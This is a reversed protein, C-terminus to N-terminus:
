WHHCCFGGIDNLLDRNKKRGLMIEHRKQKIEKITIFYIKKIM